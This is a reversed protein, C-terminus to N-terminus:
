APSNSQPASPDIIPLDPALDAFHRRNLTAIAEVGAGRLLAVTFADYSRGGVVHRGALDDLLEWVLEPRFPAVQMNERVTAEILRRAEDGTARWAGPLRTLVSYCELVSHHTVWLENEVPQSNIWATAAIQLPHGISMAAVLVSSDVGIRM